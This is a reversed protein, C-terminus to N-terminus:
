YDNKVVGDEKSIICVLLNLLFFATLYYVTKVPCFRISLLILIGISLFSNVRGYKVIVNRAQSKIDNKFDILDDIIQIISVIIVASIIDYFSSIFVGMILVLIGEQWSYLRTPLKEKYDGAMGIAYSAAFISVSDSFNLYLSIILLVFSYPLLARNLIIAFNWQHTLRDIDKDLFDDMLKIVIGM